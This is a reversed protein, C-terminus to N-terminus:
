KLNLKAWHTPNEYYTRYDGDWCGCAWGLKWGNTEYWKASVFPPEPQGYWEHCLQGGKLLIWEDKPASAMSGWIVVNFDTKM